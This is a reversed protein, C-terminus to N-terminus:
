YYSVCLLEDGMLDRPFWFFGMRGISNLHGTAANEAVVQELDDGIRVAHFELRRKFTQWSTEDKVTWDIAMPLTSSTWIVKTTRGWGDMEVRYEDTEEIVRSEVPPDMSTNLPLPQPRIQFGFYEYIDKETRVSTPLGQQHWADLVGPMVGYAHRFPLADVEKFQVTRILRERYDM